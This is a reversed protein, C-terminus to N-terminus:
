AHNEGPLSNKLGLAKKNYLVRVFFNDAGLLVRLRMEEDSADESQDPIKSESQRM